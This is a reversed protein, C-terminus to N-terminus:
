TKLYYTFMGLFSILTVFLYILTYKKIRQNRKDNYFAEKVSDIGRIRYIFLYNSLLLIFYLLVFYSNNIKRFDIIRLSLGIIFLTLVNLVEIITIACLAYVGAIDNKGSKQYKLVIFYFIFESISLFIM